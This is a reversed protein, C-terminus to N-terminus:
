ILKMNILKNINEKGYISLEYYVKGFGNERKYIKSTINLKDLFISSEKLNIRLISCLRVVYKDKRLRAKERIIEKFNDKNLNWRYTKYSNICENLKKDKNPHLFGVEKQFRILNDKGYIFLRYIDRNKIKKIKSTIKFKLLSEQIQKLGKYNVCDLGINRNKSKELVVWAECDFFSRLWLNLCKKNFNLIKWDRSYFSNLRTLKFYIEKSNIRCRGDKCIYPKKNFVKFFRNQFDKLLTLNNNRFGIVYYRHIQTEPNKIVYGDACLYSHIVSFNTDNIM